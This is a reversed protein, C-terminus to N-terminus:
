VSAVVRGDRGIVYLTPLAKVGYRSASLPDGYAAHRALGPQLSKVYGDVAEARDAPEDESVAVFRVGKAEYEAALKLRWPMEERCPPCWTAWFDLLVVQGQLGSLSVRGGAYQEFDFAPAESGNALLGGQLDNMFSVVLAGAILFLVVGNSLWKKLLWEKA